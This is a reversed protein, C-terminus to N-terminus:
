ADLGGTDGGVRRRDPHQLLAAKDALAKRPAIEADVAYPLVVQQKAQKVLIEPTLLTAAPLLGTELNHCVGQTQRCQAAILVPMHAASLNNPPLKPRPNEPLAAYVPRAPSPPRCYLSCACRSSAQPRPASTM